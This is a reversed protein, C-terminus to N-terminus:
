KCLASAGGRQKREDRPRSRGRHRSSPPPLDHNPYQEALATMFAAPRRPPIPGAAGARYFGAVAGSGSSVSQSSCHQVSRCLSRYAMARASTGTARGLTLLAAVIGGTGGHRWAIGGHRWTGGRGRMAAVTGGCGRSHRWQAAVAAAIGGSHRWPPGLAALTPPM